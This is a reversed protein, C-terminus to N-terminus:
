GQFRGMVSERAMMDQVSVSERVTQFRAGDVMVEAVLPRGNYASAMVAGYAGAQQLVVLEGAAVPPLWADRLFLDSSECVPGVVHCRVRQQDAPQTVPLLEHSAQYLAPRLLDNMAADLILFPIQDSEKRYIARSVLIGAPGVLSRGPEVAIQLGLDGLLEHVLDAVERYDLVRGDGYDIGFGGGLDLHSIAFGRPRYWEVWRRMKLCAQRYPEADTIQSGIHLALGRLELGESDLTTRLATELQEEPIGFKSGRVGTSIHRHTAASVDPNVRISVNARLGSDRCLTALQQLEPLSEVNFPGVGARLAALLEDQRKGVGSFIVQAPDIGAALVRQLEGGSVIDAGLGARAMLDLVALNGNAKVAYHITAGIRGFAAKCLDVRHEIDARSYCYFPTDRSEAIDALAVAEMHLQGNRYHLMSEQNM